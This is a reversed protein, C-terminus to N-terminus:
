PSQSLTPAQGPAAAALAAGALRVLDIDYVDHMFFILGDLGADWYAQAQEGISAPTGVVAGGLGEGHLEILRAHKARAEAETEAIVLEGLRTKSLTAPDRGFRDCHEDLVRLKTRVTDLDGVLNCGDGYQAVLRLTRKEGNGAILIPIGGPRLPRPNNVANEVSYYRGSFTASENTFLDRCIQVAEELRAMREGLGPFPIGYDRHEADAWAAGLTLVARGGSVIDLTTLIKALFSPHRYTVGTSLAGLSASKTRAAVGALLTYAELMPDDAPGVIDIQYIHDMFWLSDFGSDEAAVAVDAIHEFLDRDPVGPFTLNPMQLGLRTVVGM